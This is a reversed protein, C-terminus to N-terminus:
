TMKLSGLKDVQQSLSENQDDDYNDKYTIHAKDNSDKLLKNIQSEKATISDQVNSKTKGVLNTKLYNYFDQNASFFDNQYAWM